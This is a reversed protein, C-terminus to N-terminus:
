LQEKNIFHSLLVAKARITKESAPATLALEATDRDVGSTVASDVALQSGPPVGRRRLERVIARDLTDAATPDKGAELTLALADVYASRPPPMNRATEEVPGFRKGGAVLWVACALSLLVLAQKWRAPLASLGTPQTFGHVYEVFQVTGSTDGVADLALLANDGQDIQGNEVITSDAIAVVTGDGIYEIGLLTGDQNGVLPLLSGAVPWEKSAAVTDVTQFPGLDLLSSAPAGTTTAPSPAKTIIRGLSSDIAVFRGGSRIFENLANVDEGGLSGGDILVVVDQPSLSVGALPTRLQSVDYGNRVLLRSLAATGSSHTAYSSGSPGDEPKQQEASRALGAVVLLGVIALVVLGARSRFLPADNM